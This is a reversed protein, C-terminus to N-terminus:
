SAPPFALSGLFGVTYADGLVGGTVATSPVAVAITPNWSATNDGNIGTADVVPTAANSLPIPPTSAAVATVNGTTTITNPSYTSDTAPITEFTSGGGTIFDATSATATWTASLLARNDTVTVAGLLGSITTGPLGSGLNASTPATMTLLGSGVTFTVTTNPDGPMTSTPTLTVKRSNRIRHSKAGAAVAPRHATVSGHTGAYAAAPALATGIVVGAALTATM